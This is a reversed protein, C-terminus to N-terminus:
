IQTFHAAPFSCQLLGNGNCAATINHQLIVPVHGYYIHHCKISEVHNMTVKLFDEYSACSTAKLYYLHNTVHPKLSLWPKWQSALSL